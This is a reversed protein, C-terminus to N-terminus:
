MPGYEMPPPRPKTVSYPVCAKQGQTKILVTVELNPMTKSYPVQEPCGPGTWRGGGNEGCVRGALGLAHPIGSGCWVVTVGPLCRYCTKDEAGEVFLFLVHRLIPKCQNWGKWFFKVDNTACIKSCEWFSSILRLDFDALFVRWRRVLISKRQGSGLLFAGWIMTEVILWGWIHRCRM